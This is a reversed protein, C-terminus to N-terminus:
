IKVITKESKTSKIYPKVGLLIYHQLVSLLKEKMFHRYTLLSIERVPIPSKFSKVRQKREDNLTPIVLEPIITIGDNISVMNLLTEISGAEFDLQLDSHHLKKLSCLNMVQ